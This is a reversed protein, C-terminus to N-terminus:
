RARQLREVEVEAESAVAANGAARLFFAYERWLQLDDPLLGVAYQYDGCAAAVDGLSGRYKGRLARFMPSDPYAALGQELFRGALEPQNSQMALIVMQYLAWFEDPSYQLVAQYQYWAQEFNRSESLQNASRLLLSVMDNRAVPNGPSIRLAESLKEFAETVKDHSRDVNAEMTLLTAKRMVKVKEAEEDSLGEVLEVPLDNFLDLLVKQNSHRTYGVTSRPSSYEVVPLDDTNLDGQVFEDAHESLDSVLLGLIMLPDDIGIGKLSARVKPDEFNRKLWEANVHREGEFGIMLSDDGTYFILANPFVKLFTRIICAYNEETLEYLPLYQCMIGGPNLRARAHEFHEITYLNNAGSRVPEFPDSTIVDYKKDTCFLHNRGDEIRVHLKSHELINHNLDKYLRAVVKVRPEIEAVTLEDLPYCGVSGLTVGAGLGINIASKPNSHLMMPLHGCLRQLMMSAASTDAEVKGDTIYSMNEDATQLVAVTTVAGEEYVLLRDKRATEDLNVKGDVIYKWPSFYPGIALRRKDWHPPIVLIVAIVALAPLALVMKGAPRIRALLILLAGAMAALLSLLLISKEMGLLPLMVFGSLFSGLVAGVTNFTYIEGITRSSSEVEERLARAAATFAAGFLAAPGLLISATILFKAEILNGWTLGHDIFYQLLFDQKGIFRFMSWVMLAGILIEAGAFITIPNKLRDAIWSLLMSGLGIGLLFMSLMSAFSYTTSGFVLILARFWVVEFALSLFGSVAVGLLLWKARINLHTKEVSSSEPLDDLMIKSFSSWVLAAAGVLINISVASINARALGLAPMIFYSASLVGAVAGTTNIGYLWGLRSGFHRRDAALARCLVPLSGGMLFTPVLLLLISLVFRLPTLLLLSDSVNQYVFRYLFMIATLCFPLILAFLGIGIEICGFVRLPRKLRSGWRGFYHAGLALGAMFATLVTSAALVTNGFVFGIQRFWLAEYVLAAFGSCFFLVGALILAPAARGLDSRGSQSIENSSTM